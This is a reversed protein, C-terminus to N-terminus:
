SYCKAEAVKAQQLEIKKNLSLYEYMSSETGRQKASVWILRMNEDTYLGHLRMNELQLRQLAESNIKADDELLM